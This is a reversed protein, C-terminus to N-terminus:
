FPHYKSLVFALLFIRRSAGLSNSDFINSGSTGLTGLKSCINGWRLFTRREGVPALNWLFFINSLCFDVNKGYARITGTIELRSFCHLSKCLINRGEFFYLFEKMTNSFVRDFSSVAGTTLLPFCSKGYLLLYDRNSYM